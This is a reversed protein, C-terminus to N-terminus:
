IGWGKLGDILKQETETPWVRGDLTALIDAWEERSAIVMYYDGPGDEPHTTFMVDM